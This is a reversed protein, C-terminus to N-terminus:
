ATAPRPPKAMAIGAFPMAVFILLAVVDFWVPQPLMAINMIGGCLLLVGVVYAPVRSRGIKAALFTGLLTGVLWGVLVLVFAGAPLTAVLRRVAEADRFNINDPIPYIRHNIQEATMMCAVAIVFGVVGALVKRTM